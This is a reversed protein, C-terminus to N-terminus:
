RKILNSLFNIAIRTTDRIGNATETIIGEDEEYIDKFEVIMNELNKLESRLDELEETPAEEAPRKMPESREICKNGKSCIEDPACERDATCEDGLLRDFWTRDVPAELVLCRGKECGGPCDTLEYKYGNRTNPDCSYEKLQDGECADEFEEATLDEEALKKMGNNYVSRTIDPLGPKTIKPPQIDPIEPVTFSPIEPDDLSPTIAQPATDLERPISNLNAIPNGTIKLNSNRTILSEKPTYIVLKGKTYIPNSAHKDSDMCYPGGTCRGEACNPCTVELFAVRSSEAWIPNSLGICGYNVLTIEDECYDTFTDFFADTSPYKGQVTSRKTFDDLSAEETDYVCSLDAKPDSLKTGIWITNIQMNAPQLINGTTIYVKTAFTLKVANKGNLTDLEITHKLTQENEKTYFNIGEKTLSRILEPERDFSEQENTFFYSDLKQIKTQHIRWTTYLKDLGDNFDIGVTIRNPTSSKITVYAKNEGFTTEAINETNADLIGKVAIPEGETNEYFLKFKEFSSVQKQPGVDAADNEAVALPILLLLGILITTITKKM